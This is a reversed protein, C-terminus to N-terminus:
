FRSIGKQGLRKSQFLRRNHIGVGGHVIVQVKMSKFVRLRHTPRTGQTPNKKKEQLLMWLIPRSLLQVHVKGGPPTKPATPPLTNTHTHSYVRTHAHTM